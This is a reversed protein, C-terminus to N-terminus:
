SWATRFHPTMKHDCPPLDAWAYRSIWLFIVFPLFPEKPEKSGSFTPLVLQHNVETLCTAWWTRARTEKLKSNHLAQWLDHTDGWDICWENFNPLCVYLVLISVSGPVLTTFICFISIYKYSKASTTTLMSRFNISNISNPSIQTRWCSFVHTHLGEFRFSANGLSQIPLFANTMM